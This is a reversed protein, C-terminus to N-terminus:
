PIAHIEDLHIVAGVQQSSSMGTLHAQYSVHLGDQQFAAALNDPLYSTGSGDVLKFGGGEVLFRRITGTGSIAGTSGGGGSCGAVILCLMACACVFMARRM